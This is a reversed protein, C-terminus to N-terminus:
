YKRKKMIREKAENAMFRTRGADGGNASDPANDYSRARKIVAVDRDAQVQVMKSKIIKPSAIATGVVDKLTGAATHFIRDARKM